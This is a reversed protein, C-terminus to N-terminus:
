LIDPAFIERDAQDGYEIIEEGTGLDKYEKQIRMM